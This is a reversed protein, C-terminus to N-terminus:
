LSMPTYAWMKRVRALSTVRETEKAIDMREQFVSIRLTDVEKQEDALEQLLM